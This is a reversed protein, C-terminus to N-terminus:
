AQSCKVSLWRGLGTSVLKCPHAMHIEVRYRAGWWPAWMIGGRVTLTPIDLHEVETVAEVVSPSILLSAMENKPHPDQCM